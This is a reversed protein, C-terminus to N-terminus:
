SINSIASNDHMSHQGALMASAEMTFQAQITPDSLRAKNITM